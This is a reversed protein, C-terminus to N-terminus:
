KSEEMPHKLFAAGFAECSQFLSKTLPKISWPLPSFCTGQLIDLNIKRKNELNPLSSM